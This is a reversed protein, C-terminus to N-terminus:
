LVPILKLFIIGTCVTIKSEPDPEEISKSTYQVCQTCYVACHRGTRENLGVKDNHLLLHADKVVQAPLLGDESLSV